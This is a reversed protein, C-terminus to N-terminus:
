VLDVVDSTPGCMLFGEEGTEPESDTYYTGEIIMDQTLPRSRKKSRRKPGPATSRKYNSGSRDIGLPETEIMKGEKDSDISALKM